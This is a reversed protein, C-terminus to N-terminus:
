IGIKVTFSTRYFPLTFFFLFDKSISYCLVFVLQYSLLVNLVVIECHDTIVLVRSCYRHGQGQVPECVARHLEM